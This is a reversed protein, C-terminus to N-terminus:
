FWTDDEESSWFRLWLRTGQVRRCRGHDHHCRRRAKEQTTTEGVGWRSTKRKEVDPIAWRWAIAEAVTAERKWSGKTSTTSPNSRERTAKARTADRKRATMMKQTETATAKRKRTRTTFSWGNTQCKQSRNPKLKAWDANLRDPEIPNASLLDKHATTPKPM